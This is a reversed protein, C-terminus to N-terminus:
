GDGRLETILHEQAIRLYDFDCGYHVWQIGLDVMKRVFEPNPGSGLGIYRGATRAKDIFTRMAQQVVPGDVAGLRDISGSLDFPGLVLSDLGEIKVIEDIEALAGATEMQAVVFVNRNAWQAYEMGDLRGYETPRRPGFGRTGLPPYRCASVFRRVEDASESRPLIIGDAGSDLVKKIWAVSGDPIRVICPVGGARAAVLHNVMSETTLPTHELDIWFFDAQAAMAETVCPDSFTVASGLCLEGADLKRRFSEIHGIM